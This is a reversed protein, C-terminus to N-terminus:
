GYRSMLEAHEEPTPPAVSDGQQAENWAEVLLATDRPTMAWVEAPLRGMVGCINM